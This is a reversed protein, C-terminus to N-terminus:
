QIDWIQELIALKKNLGIKAAMKTVMAVTFTLSIGPLHKCKSVPINM